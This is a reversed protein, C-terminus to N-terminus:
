RGSLLKIGLGVALMAALAGNGSGGSGGTGDGTGGCSPLRGLPEIPALNVSGAIAGDGGITPLDLMAAAAADEASPNAARVEREIMSGISRVVSAWDGADLEACAGAYGDARAFAYARTDGAAIARAARSSPSPLLYRALFAACSAYLAPWASWRRMAGSSREVAEFCEADAARCHWGWPNFNFEREGWGSEVVAFVMVAQAIRFALARDWVNGTWLGPLNPYGRVLARVVMQWRSLLWFERSQVNEVYGGASWARAGAGAAPWDLRQGSARGTLVRPM